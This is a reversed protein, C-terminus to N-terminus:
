DDNGRGETARRRRRQLAVMGVALVLPTGIVYVLIGMPNLKTRPTISMHIGSSTVPVSSAEPGGPRPIAVMYLMFNGDMIANVKWKLTVSEGPALQEIYQARQPSWDEPDVIDGKADLNIINM